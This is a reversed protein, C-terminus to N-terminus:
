GGGGDVNDAGARGRLRGNEERRIMALFTGGGARGGAPPATATPAAGVGTQPLEKRWDMSGATLPSKIKFEAM